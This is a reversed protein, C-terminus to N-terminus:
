YDVNVHIINLCGLLRFWKNGEREREREREIYIYIYIYIYDYLFFVYVKISMFENTKYM